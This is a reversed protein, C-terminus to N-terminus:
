GQKREPFGCGVVVDDISDPALEPVQDPAARIAFAALDDLRVDVLSGKHARGIATRATAVIVAGRDSMGHNARRQGVADSRDRVWRRGTRLLRRGGRHGRPQGLRKMPVARTMGAIVKQAEETSGLIEALLPTQTPGPCVVNATM